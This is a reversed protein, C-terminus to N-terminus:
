GHLDDVEVTYDRPNPGKMREQPDLLAGLIKQLVDRARARALVEVPIKEPALAEMGDLTNLKFAEEALFDRFVTMEPVDAM